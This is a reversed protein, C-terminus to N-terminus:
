PLRLNPGKGCWVRAWADMNVRAYPDSIHKALTEYFHNGPETSGHVTFDYYIGKLNEPVEAEWVLNDDPVMEITKYAQTDLADRYLYLKVKDARPSFIRFITSRGDEDINAGLEKPSYLNRFWGDFSCWSTLNYEPISLYYIKRRDIPVAPSILTEHSGNPLVNAIKIEQGNVDTLLYEEPDLPRKIGHIDAWIAHNSLIEAKLTPVKTDHMFVLNGSRNNKAGSPPQVWEGDNIRFKFETHPPILELKPNKVKLMWIKDSTKKLNWLPDDMEQAWNRFPGTVSVRKINELKYAEEDFIFISTDGNVIYGEMHQSWGNKTLCFVTFILFVISKSLTNQKLNVM